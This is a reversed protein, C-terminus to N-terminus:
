AKAPAGAPAGLAEDVARLLAERSFPKQLLQAGDEPRSAGPMVDGAYGSVYLVPLTPQLVRVQAVLEAGSMAPMVVDTVLLDLEGHTEVCCELGARGDAAELVSFGHERLLRVTLARVAAEDEVVLVRRGAGPGPGRPEPEVGLLPEDTAPLHLTVTTGEGEISALEITGGAQTAIGYVTALGLGTGKGTPKTSFFPEFARASTEASMGSGDDRVVLRVYRGPALGAPGGRRGVVVNSVALELVGGSPLADRANVALNVLVQELQGAGLKTRWLPAAAGMRLDIHEGITPRLLNRAAELSRGVDVVQPLTLERRSFVLLQHTLDRAREAARKIEQVDERRPDGEELDDIVFSAYNLIVALLNNFDHAVGGALQGVSELRQSRALQERLRENEEDRQVEEKTVLRLEVRGRLFYAVGLGVLALVVLPAIAAIAYGM